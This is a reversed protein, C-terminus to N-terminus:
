PKVIMFPGMLGIATLWRQHIKIRSFGAMLYPLIVRKNVGVLEAAMRVTVEAIFLEILKYQKYQSLHSKRM